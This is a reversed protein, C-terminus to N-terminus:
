RLSKGSTLRCQPHIRRSVRMTTERNAFTPSDAESMPSLYHDYVLAYEWGTENRGTRQTAIVHTDKAVRTTWEGLHSTRFAIPTPPEATPFRQIQGYILDTQQNLNLYCTDDIEVILAPFMPIGEAEM